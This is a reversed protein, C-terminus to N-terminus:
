ERPISGYKLRLTMEQIETLEGDAIFKEFNFYRSGNLHWEDAGNDDFEVAPGDIRHLRDNVVWVKFKESVDIVAPGSLNHLFGNFFWATTGDDWIIAPGDTRHYMRDTKLENDVYRFRYMHKLRHIHEGDSSWGWGIFGKSEVRIVKDTLMDDAM